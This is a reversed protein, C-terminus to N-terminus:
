WGRWRRRWRRPTRGTAAGGARPRGPRSRMTAPYLPWSRRCATVFVKWPPRRRPRPGGMEDMLWSPVADQHPPGPATQRPHASGHRSSRSRAAGPPRNRSGPDPRRPCPKSSSGTARHATPQIRCPRRAHRGPLPRAVRRGAALLGSRPPGAPRVAVRARSRVDACSEPLRASGSGAARGAEGRACCPVSTKWDRPRTRDPPAPLPLPPADPNWAIHLSAPRPRGSGRRPSVKAVGEPDRGVEPPRLPSELPGPVMM